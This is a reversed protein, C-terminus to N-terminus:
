KDWNTVREYKFLFSGLLQKPALNENNGISM